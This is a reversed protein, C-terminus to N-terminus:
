THSILRKVTSNNRRAPLFVIFILPQARVCLAEAFPSVWSLAVNYYWCSLELLVAVLFLFAFGANKKSDVELTLGKENPTYPEDVGEM